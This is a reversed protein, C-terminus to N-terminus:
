SDCYVIRIASVAQPTAPGVSRADSGAPSGGCGAFLCGLTFLVGLAGAVFVAQASRTM